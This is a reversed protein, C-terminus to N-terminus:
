LPRYSNPFHYVFGLVVRREIKIKNKMIQVKKGGSKQAKNQSKRKPLFPPVPSIVVRKNKKKKENRKEKPGQFQEYWNCEPFYFFTTAPVVNSVLRSERMGLSTAVANGKKRGKLKIRKSCM